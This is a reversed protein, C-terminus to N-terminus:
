RNIKVWNRYDKRLCHGCPRFGSEYADSENRFFVRNQKKMQKGSSCTLLGFIKLRENGAFTIKRNKILAHLKQQKINEHRIMSLALLPSLSTTDKTAETMDKAQGRRNLLHLGQRNLTM